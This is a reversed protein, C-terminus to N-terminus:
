LARDPAHSVCRVEVAVTGDVHWSCERGAEGAQLEMRLYATGEESDDALYVEARSLLLERVSVQRGLSVWAKQRKVLCLHANHSLLQALAPSRPCSIKLSLPITDGSAFCKSTPMTLQLLARGPDPDQRVLRSTRCCQSVSIVPLDDVQHSSGDCGKPWTPELPIECVRADASSDVRVSWPIYDLSPM